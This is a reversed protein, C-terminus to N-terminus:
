YIIEKLYYILKMEKFNILLIQLIKVIILKQGEISIINDGIKLGGIYEINKEEFGIVLAGDTNAKIGVINGLPYVYQKKSSNENRFTELIEKDKTKFIVETCFLVIFILFISIVLKNIQKM